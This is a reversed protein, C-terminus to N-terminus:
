DPFQLYTPQPSKALLDESNAILGEVPCLHCVEAVSGHPGPVKGKALSQQTRKTVQHFKAWLSFFRASSSPLGWLKQSSVAQSQKWPPLSFKRRRNECWRFTQTQTTVAKGYRMLSTGPCLPGTFVCHGEYPTCFDKNQQVNRENPPHPHVTKVLFGQSIPVYPVFM